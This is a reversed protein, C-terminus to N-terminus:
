EGDDDGEDEDYPRCVECEDAPRTTGDVCECAPAPRCGEPRGWLDDEALSETDYLGSRYEDDETFIAWRM